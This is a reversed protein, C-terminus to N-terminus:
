AAQAITQWENRPLEIIAGGLNELDSARDYSEVDQSFRTVASSIGFVSTDGGEILHALISKGEQQSIWGRKEIQEISGVPDVVKINKAERFKNLSKDFEVADFSAHLADRMRLMLAKDEAEKTDDGIVEQIDESDGAARGVHYKALGKGTSCGNIIVGAQVAQGVVVEGQVKPTVAKIYLKKDTVQCSIIELEPMAMLIPLTMSAVDDNDIIRYRNSLVARVGERNTRFLRKSPEKAFWHNINSCLLEPADKVMRDMYKAPINQHAGIQRLAHHSLNHLNGKNGPVSGFIGALSISGNGEPYATLINTSALYDKNWLANEELQAALQPLALGQKM